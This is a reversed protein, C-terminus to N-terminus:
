RRAPGAQEARVRDHQVRARHDAPDLDGRLHGLQGRGVDGVLHAVAHRDPHGDEEEQEALSRELSRRRPQAATGRPRDHDSAARDDVAVALSPGVHRDLPVPDGRDALVELNGAPGPDEVGAPAHHRGTQDIEVGMQALGPSSSASVTSDPVRAAASPPKVATTAMGLVSGGSSEASATRM